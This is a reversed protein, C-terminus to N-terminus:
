KQTTNLPSEFFFIGPHNQTETIFVTSEFFVHSNTYRKLTMPSEIKKMKSAFKKGQTFEATTKIRGEKCGAQVADKELRKM